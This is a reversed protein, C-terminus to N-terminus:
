ETAAKKSPRPGPCTHEEAPFRGHRVDDAYYRAGARIEEGLERYRRCIEPSSPATASCITSPDPDSLRLRRAQVSM